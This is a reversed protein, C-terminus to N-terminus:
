GVPYAEPKEFNPVEVDFNKIPSFKEISWSEMLEITYNSVVVLNMINASYWKKHFDLLKERM